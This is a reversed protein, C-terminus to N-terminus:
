RRPAERPAGDDDDDADDVGDFIHGMRERKTRLYGANHESVDEAVLPLRAAVHIGHRMLEDVKAPNNTMLRISRVGLAALMRAAVGFDREDDARGLLRNAEVTDHGQAQLNYARLKDILGIGRGEQRLYLVVGGGDAVVRAMSRDLQEGCDCLRSRLVEGTLCESHVRCLVPGAAALAALDGHALALHEKPARAESECTFASVDFLGYATPIRTTVHRHLVPASLPHAAQAAAAGITRLLPRTVRPAM